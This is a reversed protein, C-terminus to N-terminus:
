KAAAIGTGEWLAKWIRKDLRALWNFIVGKASPVATADGWAYRLELPHGHQRALNTAATVKAAADEHRDCVACIAIGYHHTDRMIRYAKDAEMHFVMQLLSRAFEMPTREDNFMLVYWQGTKEAARECVYDIHEELSAWDPFGFEHAVVLQADSLELGGIRAPDPAGDAFGPHHARFRAVGHPDNRRVAGLLNTAREQAVDPTEALGCPPSLAPHSAGHWADNDSM